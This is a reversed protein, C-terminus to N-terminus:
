GGRASTSRRSSPATPLVGGMLYTVVAWPSMRWQPPRQRQDNRTVADLENAFVQEAHPRLRDDATERGDTV